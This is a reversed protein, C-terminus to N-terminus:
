LALKSPYVFPDLAELRAPLGEGIIKAFKSLSQEMLVYSTPHAMNVERECFSAFTLFGLKVVANFPALQRYQDQATPKRRHIWSASTNDGIHSAIGVPRKQGLGTRRLSRDSIAAPMRFVYLSGNPVSSTRLM